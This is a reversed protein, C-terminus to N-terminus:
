GWILAQFLPLCILFSAIHKVYTKLLEVLTLKTKTRSNKDTPLEFLIQKHLLIADQYQLQSSPHFLAFTKGESKGREGVM